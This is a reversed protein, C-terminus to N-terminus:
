EEYSWTQLRGGGKQVGYGCNEVVSEVSIEESQWRPRGACMRGYPNIDRGDWGGVRYVKLRVTM